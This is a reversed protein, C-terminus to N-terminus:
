EYRKKRITEIKTKVVGDQLEVDLIQQPKLDATSSIIKGNQKVLALGKQLWQQPNSMHLIQQIWDLHEKQKQLSLKTQLLHEAMATHQQSRQLLLAKTVEVLPLQYAEEIQRYTNKLMGKSGLQLRVSLVPLHKRETRLSKNGVSKLLFAMRQLQYQENKLQQLPRHSVSYSANELFGYQDQLLQYAYMKLNNFGNLIKTEFSLNHSLIFEAVATPTKLRTHAVMDVISTDREHGIGSLVPLASEALAACLTYDNFCALDINSGGGRLVCIADFTEPCEHIAALAKIISQPSQEGQMLAPFLRIDFAYGWENNELQHQFDQFGAAEESSIVAIKQLVSPLVFQKNFDLLGEEELRQITAQKQREMEGLSYTADIDLIQLNFGYVQHFTVRVQILIKMGVKLQQRSVSEFHDLIQRSKMGGWLTARTKAVLMDQDKEVLEFYLHGRGSAKSINAIEATVWYTQDFSSLLVGQVLAMLDSLRYAAAMTNM